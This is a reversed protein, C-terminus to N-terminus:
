RVMTKNIEWRHKKNKSLYENFYDDTHVRLLNDANIAKEAREKSAFVGQFGAFNWNNDKRIFHFITYVDKGAITNM